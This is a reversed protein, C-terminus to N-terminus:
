KEICKMMLPLIRFAIDAGKGSIWVMYERLAAWKVNRPEGSKYIVEIKNIRGLIDQIEEVSLADLNQVQRRVSGFLDDSDATIEQGPCDKSAIMGEEKHLLEKLKAKLLMIDKIYDTPLDYSFISLGQKIDKIRDSYVGLLVTQLDKAKMTDRRRIVEDCQIINFQIQKKLNM